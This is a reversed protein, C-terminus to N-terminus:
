IGLHKVGLQMKFHVTDGKASLHCPRPLLDNSLTLPMQGGINGMGVIGLQKGGLQIGFPEGIGRRQFVAEQERARRALMLMTM